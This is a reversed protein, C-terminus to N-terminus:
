IYLCIKTKNVELFLNASQTHDSVVHRSLQPTTWNQTAEILAQSEKEYEDDYYEDSEYERLVEPGQFAEELDEDFDPIGISTILETQYTGESVM